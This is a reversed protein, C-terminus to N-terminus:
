MYRPMKLGLIHFLQQMLKLTLACINLLSSQRIANNENIIHCESYFRSFEKALSYLYDCLINPHHKEAATMIFDPFKLLLLVLNREQEQIDGLSGIQINHESARALISQIRVSAYLLYPGTKGEFKSFKPIDFMYDQNRDHQLDGFKLAALGVMQAIGAKEDGSLDRAVGADDISKKAESILLDILDKLKMVGGSRTKFPKGDKGNVTGYPLHKFTTNTAIGTKKAARFVQEFHLSQRRDVVYLIEEAGFDHVRENITAMDSTGYLYGGDKKRLMLPPMPAKDDDKAVDIIIAGDHEYAQKEELLKEILAGCMAQYRSEGFWQDFNVDLTKYDQKIDNLSLKVFHEWLARYGPRGQQLEMTAIRAAEAENSDKKCLASIKPYMSELDQLTIPAEGPYPGSYDKDFYPLEPQHKKLEHILMGMQTGWDGMHIDGIVEHGIARLLRKITEGLIATRLHGVHMPKAINPGGFDIFIKKKVAVEPLGKRKDDKLDSLAQTLFSSHIKINIFGPGAISLEFDKSSFQDIIKQAINRPKQRAIKAAAMAGNCQYDALDPRDSYQVAGLNRPLDLQEFCDSLLNTLHTKVSM